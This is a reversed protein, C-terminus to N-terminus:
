GNKACERCYPKANNSIAINNGDVHYLAKDPTLEAGCIWCKVNKNGTKKYKPYMMRGVKKM